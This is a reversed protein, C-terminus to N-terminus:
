IFEDPNRKIYEYVMARVVDNFVKHSIHYCLKLLKSIIWLQTYQKHLKLWIKVRKRFYARNYDKTLSHM